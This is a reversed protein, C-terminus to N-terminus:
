LKYRALFADFEIQNPFHMCPFRTQGGVQVFLDVKKRTNNPNKYESMGLFTNCPVTCVRKDKIDQFMCMEGM